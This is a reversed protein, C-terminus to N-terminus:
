RQYDMIDVKAKTLTSKSGNSDKSTQLRSHWVVGFNDGCVARSFNHAEEYRQGYKDEQDKDM